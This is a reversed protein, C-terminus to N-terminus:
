MHTPHIEYRVSCQRNAGHDTECKVVYSGPHVKSYSQLVWVLKNSSKIFVTRNRLRLEEYSLEVDKLLHYSKVQKSNTKNSFVFALSKNTCDKPDFRSKVLPGVLNVEGLSWQHGSWYSAWMGRVVLTRVLWFGAEESWQHGSWHSAESPRSVLPAAPWHDTYPCWGPSERSIPGGSGCLRTGCLSTCVCICLFVFVCSMIYLTVQYTKNMDNIPMKQWFM